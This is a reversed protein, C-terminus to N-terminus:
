QISHYVNILDQLSKTPSRGRTEFNIIGHWNTKIITSVIERYDIVGRTIPSHLDRMGDNNSFSMGAIRHSYKKILEVPNGNSIQAHGIDLFLPLNTHSFVYEFEDDHTFIYYFPRYKQYNSLNELFLLVQKEAAYEQLQHITDIFNNIAIKKASIVLRPEVIAGGHIILPAQLKEALDIEKKVYSIAALRLEDIDSALPVKFNGHVISKLNNKQMLNRLNNIRRIDWHSPHEASLSGDIYWYQYGHQYAELLGDEAIKYNQLSFGSVFPISEPNSYLKECIM